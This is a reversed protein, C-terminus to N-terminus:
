ITEEKLNADKKHNGHKNRRQMFKDFSQKFSFHSMLYQQDYDDDCSFSIVYGDIKGGIVYKMFRLAFKIQRDYFTKQCEVMEDAHKPQYMYSIEIM